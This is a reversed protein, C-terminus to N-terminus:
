YNNVAKRVSETSLDRARVLYDHVGSLFVKALWNKYSAGSPGQGRLHRLVKGALAAMELTIGPDKRRHFDVRRKIARMKGLGIRSPSCAHGVCEAETGLHRARHCMLEPQALGICGHMREDFLCAQQAVFQA